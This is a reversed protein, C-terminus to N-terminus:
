VDKLRGTNTAENDLNGPLEVVKMSDSVAHYVAANVEAGLLVVSASLYMYFLLGVAAGLSGYTVGYNAFTALYFSFGVSSLAWLVVALVAGFVVTRFSQRADPGYRYVLSLVVALLSLAVPYRLWGWLSAFAEDLGVVEAIREVLDPGILMLGLSVIVMLALIPGFALSLASVKWWRRTEPVEYAANLAETLTGALASTSWLALAVGFFLLSDGARKEAQEIMRQLPQLQERGREIVPELQDPVHQSSESNAQDIAEQLFNALGLAGALVVLLLVFPFLGFLGRYALAAAYTSMPHEFFKRVSREGLEVVGTGQLM